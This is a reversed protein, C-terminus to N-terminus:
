QKMRKNKEEIKFALAMSIIVLISSIIELIKGTEWGPMRLWIIILVISGAAIALYPIQKKNM